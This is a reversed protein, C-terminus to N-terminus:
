RSAPASGAEPTSWCTRASAVSPTSPAAFACSWNIACGKRCIAHASRRSGAPHRVPARAGRPRHPRNRAAAARKVDKSKASRQAETQGTEMDHAIALLVERAHDRLQSASMKAVAPLMTEASRDWEALIPALNTEIFTSFKM